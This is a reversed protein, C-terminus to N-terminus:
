IQHLWAIFFVVAPVPVVVATVLVWGAPRRGMLLPSLRRHLAAIGALLLVAVGAIPLAILFHVLWAGARSPGGWSNDYPGHDVLGYFVGRFIFALILGFPVLAAAGLLLGLVAHGVTGLVGARGPQEVRWWRAASHARGVLAAVLAALSLPLLRACYLSGRLFTM